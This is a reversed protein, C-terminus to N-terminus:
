RGIFPLILAFVFPVAFLLVVTAVIAATTLQAFGRFLMGAETNHQSEMASM